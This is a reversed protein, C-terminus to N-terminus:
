SSPHLYSGGNSKLICHGHSKVCACFSEFFGIPYPIPLTLFFKVRFLDIMEIM